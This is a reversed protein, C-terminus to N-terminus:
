LTQGNFTTPKGGDKQIKTINLKGDAFTAELIKVRAGSGTFTYVGPEPNLARVKRSINLPDDKKLDVFGDEATFKKTFTAIKHDQPLTKIEGAMWRPIIEATLEGGLQALGSSLTEYTDNKAIPIERKAILDGHDMKEDLLYLTIGTIDDGGLIASQIPSAGRYKPLLSPHVGVTGRRPIKFIDATIIKGYACVIFFDWDGSLEPATASLKEPQYVPINYKQALVKTEPPTLIKKRGAPKDPNTVVLAPPIGADILKQLTNAAFRPTGFFAYRM